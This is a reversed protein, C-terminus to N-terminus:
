KTYIYPMQKHGAQSDVGPKLRNLISDDVCVYVQSVHLKNLLVTETTSTGGPKAAKWFQKQASYRNMPCLRFLCDLSPSLSPSVYMEVLCLYVACLYRENSKRGYFFVNPLTKSRCLFTWSLSSLIIMLPLFILTSVLISVQTHPLTLSQGINTGHPGLYNPYFYFFNKMVSSFQGRLFLVLGQFNVWFM